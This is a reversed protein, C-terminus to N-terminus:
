IRCRSGKGGWSHRPSAKCRRKVRKIKKPFRLSVVGLEGRSVRSAPRLPCALAGAWPLLPALRQPQAHPRQAGCARVLEPPAPRTASPSLGRHPLGCFPSPFVLVLPRCLFICGRVVVGFVGCRGRTTSIKKAAAFRGKAHPGSDPRPSSSCRYVQRM